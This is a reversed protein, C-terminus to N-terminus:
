ESKGGNRRSRKFLFYYPYKGTWRVYSVYNITSVVLIAAFLTSPVIAFLLGLIDSTSDSKPLVRDLLAFLLMTLIWLVALVIVWRTSRRYRLEHNNSETVPLLKRPMKVLNGRNNVIVASEVGYRMMRLASVFLVMTVDAQSLHHSCPNGWM